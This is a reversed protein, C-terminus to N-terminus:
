HGKNKEFKLVQSAAFKLVALPWCNGAKMWSSVISEERSEEPVRGKIGGGFSKSDPSSRGVTSQFPELASCSLVIENIRSVTKLEQHFSIPLRM